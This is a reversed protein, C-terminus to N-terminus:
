FNSFQFHGIQFIFFKLNSWYKCFIVLNNKKRTASFLNEILYKFNSIVLWIQMLFFLDLWHARFIMCSNEHQNVILELYFKFFSFHCISYPTCSILFNWDLSFNLYDLQHACKGNYIKFITLSQWIILILIKFLSWM